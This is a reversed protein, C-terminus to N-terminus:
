LIWRWGSGYDTEIPWEVGAEVITKKARALHVGVCNITPQDSTIPWVAGVIDAAKIHRGNCNQITWLIEAAKPRLRVSRGHSILRNSGLDIFARSDPIPNGCIPCPDM